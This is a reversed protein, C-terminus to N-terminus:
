SRKIRDSDINIFIQSNGISHGIISIYGSPPVETTVGGSIGIFVNRQDDTINPFTIPCIGYEFVNCKTTSTKNTIIGIPNVNQNYSDIKSISKTTTDSIYVIDGVNLSSDCNFIDTIPSNSNSSNNRIGLVEHEIIHQVINM